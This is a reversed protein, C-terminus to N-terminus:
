AGCRAQSVMHSLSMVCPLMVCLLALLDAREWCTLFLCPLIIFVFLFCLYGFIFFPDM